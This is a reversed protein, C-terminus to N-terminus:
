KFVLLCICIGSCLKADHAFIRQSWKHTVAFGVKWWNQIVMVGFFRLHFPSKDSLIILSGCLGPRTAHSDSPYSVHGRIQQIQHYWGKKDLYLNPNDRDNHISQPSMHATPIEVNKLSQQCDAQAARDNPSHLSVTFPDLGSHQREGKRVLLAIRARSLEIFANLLFVGPLLIVGCVTSKRGHRYLPNPFQLSPISLQVNTCYPCSELIFHFTTGLAIVSLSAIGVSCTCLHQGPRLKWTIVYM